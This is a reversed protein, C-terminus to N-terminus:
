ESNFQGKSAYFALPNPGENFETFGAFRTILGALVIKYDFTSGAPGAPRRSGNFIHLCCRQHQRLHLTQSSIQTFKGAAGTRLLLRGFIPGCTHNKCPCAPRKIESAATITIIRFVKPKGM